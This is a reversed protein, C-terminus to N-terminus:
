GGNERRRDERQYTRERGDACFPVGKKIQQVLSDLRHWFARKKESGSRETLAYGVVFNVAQHQGSMEFRMSILRENVDERTFKSTKCISEKVALAVGQQVGQTSGSYFVRFGAATSVTRGPRRMEQIGLVAINKAAAEHLVVEDQGYGNAGKVSLNRVNYTAVKVLAAKQRERTLRAAARALRRGARGRKRKRRSRKIQKKKHIVHQVRQSYLNARHKDKKMPLNLGGAGLTEAGGVSKHTGM